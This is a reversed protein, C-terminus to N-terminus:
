VFLQSTCLQVAPACVTHACTYMDKSPGHVHSSDHQAPAEHPCQLCQQSCFASKEQSSPPQASQATLRLQAFHYLADCDVFWFLMFHFGAYRLVPRWDLDFSLNDSSDSRTMATAGSSSSSSSFAQLVFALSAAKHLHQSFSTCQRLLSPRYCPAMLHANPHPLHSTPALFANHVHWAMHASPSPSALQLLTLTLQSSSTM